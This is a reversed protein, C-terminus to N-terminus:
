FQRKLDIGQYLSAVENGYGNFIETKRRPTFFPDGLPRETAQSWRPHPVTPNVNANFGYDDPAALMWSSSPPSDLLEIKVIAKISKFGYKWPVVLRLPAGNQLPLDRGYMGTALITLSHMAEDLQLGETYPWPLLKNERQMPMAEPQTVSSFGVFKASSLPQVTKLLEGLHFGKWPVVASWGEVCRFRYIFEQQNFRKLLDELGWQAPKECLGEISVIWPDTKLKGALRSPSTKDWGFEYYNNYQTVADFPSPTLSEADPSSNAKAVPQAFASRMGLAPLTASVGILSGMTQVWRRREHWVKEDTIESPRILPRTRILM